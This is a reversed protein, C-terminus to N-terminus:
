GLAPPHRKLDFRIVLRRRSPWLSLCRPCRELPLMAIRLPRVEKGKTCVRAHDLRVHLANKVAEEETNVINRKLSQLYV